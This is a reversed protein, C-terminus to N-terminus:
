ASKVKGTTCVDDILKARDSTKHQSWVLQQGRRRIEDLEAHNKADLIHRLESELTVDSVPIYHVRQCFGLQSLQKEVAADGLLLSGTAPIEFFKAVVYNFILADTFAARAARIRRAYGTGVADSTDHNHNCQYGPHSHEVIHLTGDDALAKLRQRLPYYKNIMGSLLVVNEASENFPLLFEPSAAHPVWVVQKSAAIRPFFRDFVPAYSALILDAVSLARTKTAQMVPDFWHLDECLIAICFDANVLQAFASIVLNYGEWLLVIDPLAGCRERIRHQFSLPEAALDETELHMWGYHDILERMVYYLERSVYRGRIALDSILLKISM